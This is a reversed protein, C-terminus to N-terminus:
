KMCEVLKQLEAARAKLTNIVEGAPAIGEELELEQTAWDGTTDFPDVTAPAQYFADNIDTYGDEDPNTMERVDFVESIFAGGDKKKSYGVVSDYGAKRVAHAVINEQIAYALTNGQQSNRYIEYADVTAADYKDLLARINEVKAQEKLGWGSIASLVENRM